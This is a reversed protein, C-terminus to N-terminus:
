RISPARPPKLWAVLCVTVLTGIVIAMVYLPWHVVLPIVFVGGHPILLECGFVMSLAGATAAGVICPPIVRKPDAAAYPLAAETVFTAGQLLCTRGSRREDPSFRNAFVMTAIGLALPPVMGGAMVAAQPFYSGAEIAVIGFTYAAKNVPGGMDVAMLGGLLAGLMLQQWLQLGTLASVLGQNLAVMPGILPWVLAAALLLGAIPYVLTAKTAEFLSPWRRCLRNILLVGYGGLLGAVMGGMLGAGAQAMVLGAVMAPMFGPRDAISRGVFGALVPAILGFAGQQGGFTTLFSALPHYGPSGPDTIDVGFQYSLSILFGGAVVFPLVNSVGNMLHRYLDAAQSAFVRAPERGAVEVADCDRLQLARVLLDDTNRIAETVWVELTRKGAFRDKNIKRDVALIVADAAEIDDRSLADRVGIAGHTEVRINVGMRRASERLCEAAMYTHSIGAPCSTVAAVLKVPQAHADPPEQEAEAAAFLQIVQAPSEAALLRQRFEPEILHCSAAALVELHRSDVDSPEAIMLFFQSPQGDLADFEIGERAIGLAIGPERV